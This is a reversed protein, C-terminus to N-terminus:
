WRQGSNSDFYGSDRRLLESFWVQLPHLPDMEQLKTRISASDPTQLLRLYSQHWGIYPAGPLIRILANIQTLGFMLSGAANQALNSRAMAPTNLLELNRGADNFLRLLRLLNQNVKSLTAQYRKCLWAHASNQGELQDRFHSFSNQAEGTQYSLENLKLVSLGTQPVQDWLLKIQKLSHLCAKLDDLLTPSHKPLKSEEWQLDIIANLAPLITDRWLQSSENIQRIILWDKANSTDALLIPAPAENKNSEAEWASVLRIVSLASSINDHEQPPFFFRNPDLSPQPLASLLNQVIHNLQRYFSTQGPMQECVGPLEADANSHQQLARYFRQLSHLQQANLQYDVTPTPLEDTFLHSNQLWPLAWGEQQAKTQLAPLDHCQELNQCLSQYAQLWPPSDLGPIPPQNQLMLRAFQNLSQQPHPGNRMDQVWSTWDRIIRHSEVLSEQDYEIFFLARISHLTEDFEAKHWAQYIQRFDALVNQIAQLIPNVTQLGMQRLQTLIERVQLYAVGLQQDIAQGWNKILLDLQATLDSLQQLAEPPLQNGARARLIHIHLSDALAQLQQSILSQKTAPLGSLQRISNIVPHSIEHSTMLRPTNACIWVAQHYDEELIARLLDQLNNAPFLHQNDLLYGIIPWQLAHAEKLGQYTEVCSTFDDKDLSKLLVRTAAKPLADPDTQVGLANLENRLETLKYFDQLSDCHERYRAFLLHYESVRMALHHAMYEVRLQLAPLDQLTFNSFDVPWDLAPILEPANQALLLRGESFLQQYDSRPHTLLNEASPDFLLGNGWDIFSFTQNAEDWFVHEMKVDNWLIGMRHIAYLLQLTAALVKLVLVQSLTTSNEHMQGLIASISQSTIQESVMFFQSSGSTGEPSTDILLPSHVQLGNRRSNIGALRALIQAEQEIQRAQRLITGGSVSQLPRKMVASTTSSKVRLVEGADGSGIVELVQWANQKGQVTKPM